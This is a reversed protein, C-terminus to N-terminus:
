LFIDWFGFNAFKKKKKYLALCYFIKTKTSWIPDKDCIRQLTKKGGLRKM